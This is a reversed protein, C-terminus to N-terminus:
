LIPESGRSINALFEQRTAMSNRFAGLMTSTTMRADRKKVGRMTACLHLGEVVVAVGLPHLTEDIFEAIQRTMREQVQLRRAYMDVIRPIKSLGIVHGKPLYAVHARGMFPLLHHECLSFFEIDRVVIMADYVEEFLADNVLAVPDQQYGQLLEAYMRAVRDPTRKLGPRTPDEGLARLLDTVAAAAEQHHILSGAFLEDPHDNSEDETPIPQSQSQDPKM